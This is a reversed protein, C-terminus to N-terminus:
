REPDNNICYQYPSLSKLRDPQKKLDLNKLNECSDSSLLDQCFPLIRQTSFFNEHFLYHFDRAFTSWQQRIKKISTSFRKRNNDSSRRTTAPILIVSTIILVVAFINRM